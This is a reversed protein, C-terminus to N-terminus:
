VPKIIRNDAGYAEIKQIVAPVGRFEVRNGEKKGLLDQAMKSQISIINVDPNTDWPGLITFRETKGGELRLTVCTGIGVCDTSIDDPSIIRANNFQDSLRKLENQLRARRELACKYEANERLDGHARAAEIERANDVVEVTGIHRIREQAKQYGEETTWIISPEYKEEPTSRGHVVEVLSQLIKLDHSSFSTCKSALLLFEKAFPLDTDKLLDRVIQFRGGTITHYMRKVLEKSDRRQELTNMLILFNEFFREKDVQGTLVPADGETVKSFYWLFADPHVAAHDLLYQIRKQLASKHEPECLEKLVFDKVQGPEATPLVELFLEAWDSRIQQVAQLLRKRMAIIDIESITDQLNKIGKVAEVIREAYENKELIQEAFFYVQLRLTDTTGTMTLISVAKEVIAREAAEDKLIAPFDRVLAYLANFIEEPTTKGSLAEELRGQASVSEKRLVFQDKGSKPNEIQGDKKLRARASQWWKAYEEAGIVFDSFLEKIDSATKPGLDRLLHRVVGVPDDFAEKELKEPSTFRVALFHDKQLPILSRFANKFSIDRKCGGLNEFEVVLQERLFSFDVIEGVGWGATHFVINGKAIHNLLMFNSLAGKFNEKTRLGVLRLKEHFQPDTGYKARLLQLALEFLPQSNSTELDYIHRLVEIRMTEDSITLVLPLIAEVYQGFQTAFDSQKILVLINSLEEADLEDSECYEQWLVLVKNYDRAALRSRFEELYTMMLRKCLMLLM